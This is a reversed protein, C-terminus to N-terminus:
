QWNLLDAELVLDREYMGTRWNVTSYVKAERGNANRIIKITRTFQTAGNSGNYNYFGSSTDLRLAPCAGNCAAVTDPAPDVTCTSPDVCASLGELWDAPRSAALANNDRHERVFEIGEQALFSAILQDRALTASQLGKSALTLPGAIATVLITIAVFTEILTFGRSRLDYTMLGIDHSFVKHKKLLQHSKVQSKHSYKMDNM